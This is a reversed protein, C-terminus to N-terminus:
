NRSRWQYGGYFLLVNKPGHCPYGCIHPCAMYKRGCLARCPGHVNMDCVWCESACWHQCPLIVQCQMKCRYRTPDQSCPVMATHGCRELKRQIKAPCRVASLDQLQHCLLNKPVHGCPLRVGKVRHNCAGCPEGCTKPCAHDCYEFSRNCPVLCKTNRHLFDSHCKNVCPHGCSLSWMCKENCGGEPSLRSFDKPHEIFLPSRPHRPCCIQLQRDISRGEELMSIVANWMPVKSCTEANGIIYMGEQARSLLVNIRNSTKLFGCKNRNNSRVLSIVIVKAEEGQFNDVTAVRVESLLDGKKGVQTAETELQGAAIMEDLQEQDREGLVVEFTSALRKKLISLQRMYPSLVAIEGSKYTGQRALHQVLGVVMDAEWLNAYSTSGQKNDDGEEPNRHDMWFLRKTMGTVTPRDAMLPHDKLGPYLTNRVLSAISPHMRRQTDLQAIPFRKGGYREVEVLREFLSTNLGYAKGGQPNEVSFDYNTIQPRLQFHDGILIAHEMKPIMATLLHAELVEAAEECILVKANLTRILDAHLALGTTTVGIVNAAQLCRRDQLEHQSNLFKRQAEHNMTARILSETNRSKMEQRWSDLLTRREVASMALVSTKRLTALPRHTHRTVSLTNLRGALWENLLHQDDCRVGRTVREFGEDDMTSFIESFASPYTTELFSKLTRPSSLELLNSSTSQINKEIQHLSNLTKAVAHREAAPPSGIRIINMIGEDLLHELFQDLAHNTYCVCIIPGINTTRRNALLIKVLQIGLYSLALERSLCALLAECQGPDLTTAERLNAVTLQKDLSYDLGFYGRKAIRNLNLKVGPKTLYRPPPVKVYEESRPDAFYEFDPWPSLWKLFPLNRRRSVQQLSRLIPDFSVFLLSPFEVLAKEGTSGIGFITELNSQTISDVLRLTIFARKDNGALDWQGFRPNSNTGDMITVTRESVAMFTVRMQRDVLCLLTGLSLSKTTQWWERRKLSDLGQVNSPQDFSVILIVGERNSCRVSEVKPNSHIFIRTGLVKCQPSKSNPGKAAARNARAVILNDWDDMLIKLVERIQGSTDERLLRFHFDLVRSIGQCYHPYDLSREPLFPNRHSIIEERTPLVKIRAIDSHDNDHRPGERSLEGPFDVDPRSVDGSHLQTRQKVPSPEAIQLLVKIRAVEQQASNIMDSTSTITSRSVIEDLRLAIGNFNEQGAAGQSLNLTNFLASAATYLADDTITSGAYAGELHFMVWNFFARGFDGDLGYVCNFLSRVGEKSASADRMERHALIQLFPMCHQTFSFTKAMNGSPALVAQMLQQVRNLGAASGLSRILQEVTGRSGIQLIQLTTTLFEQMLNPTLRPALKPQQQKGKNNGSAAGGGANGGNPDLLMSWRHYLSVELLAAPDTPLGARSHNGANSPPNPQPKKGSKNKKKERPLLLPLLSPSISSVCAKKPPM